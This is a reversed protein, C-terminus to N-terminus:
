SVPDTFFPSLTNITNVLTQAREAKTAQRGAESDCEFDFRNIIDSPSVEEWYKVGDEGLVRIKFEKPMLATAVSLWAEFM